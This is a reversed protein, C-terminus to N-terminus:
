REPAKPGRARREPPARQDKRLARALERELRARETALEQMAHEIQRPLTARRRLEAAEQDYFAESPLLPTLVKGDSAPVLSDEPSEVWMGVTVLANRNRWRETPLPVLGREEDLLWTPTVDYYRCLALLVECSPQSLGQEIHSLTAQRIGVANAVADQSLGRERTRLYYLKLALSAM